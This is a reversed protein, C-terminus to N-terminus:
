EDGCGFEITWIEHSNTFHAVMVDGSCTVSAACEYSYAVQGVTYVDDEFVGVATEFVSRDYEMVGLWQSFGDLTVEGVYEIEDTDLEYEGTYLEMIAAAAQSLNADVEESYSFARGGAYCYESEYLNFTEMFETNPEGEVIEFPRTDPRCHDSECALSLSYHGRGLGDATGVVVAYNGESEAVAGELKSHAGWGSDYDVFLRDREGDSSEPGYLLLVTALDRATGAQTVELSFSAGDRITFFYAHYEMDANFEGDVPADLTLEGREDVSAAFDSKSDFDLQPVQGPGSPEGDCGLGFAGFLSLILIGHRM